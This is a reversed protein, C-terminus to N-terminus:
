WGGPDRPAAPARPARAARAAGVLGAAVIVALAIALGLGYDRPLLTPNDPRRGWGGLVPIAVLAVSGAVILTAQAAPRLRSPVLHLLAISILVVAPALLLDHVLLGGLLYAAWSGVSGILRAGALQVTAIVVVGLGIVACLWFRLGGDDEDGLRPGPASM